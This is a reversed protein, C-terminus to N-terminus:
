VRMTSALKGEALPEGDGNKGNETEIYGRANCPTICNRRRRKDM